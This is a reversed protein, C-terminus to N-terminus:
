LISGFNSIDKKGFYQMFQTESIAFTVGDAVRTLYVKVIRETKDVKQVKSDNMIFAEDNLIPFKKGKIRMGIKAPMFYNGRSETKVVSGQGRKGIFYVYDGNRVEVWKTHM